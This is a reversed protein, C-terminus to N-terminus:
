KNSDLLCVYQIATFLLMLTLRYIYLQLVQALTISIYLCGFVSHISQVSYLGSAPSQDSWPYLVRDPWQCQVSTSLMFLFVDVMSM